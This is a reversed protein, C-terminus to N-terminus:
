WFCSFPYCLLFMFLLTLWFSSLFIVYCCCSVFIFIIVYDSVSQLTVLWDSWGAPKGNDVPCICCEWTASCCCNVPDHMWLCEGRTNGEESSAGSGSFSGYTQSSDAVHRSLRLYLSFSDLHNYKFIKKMEAQAAVAGGETVAAHINSAAYTNSCTVDSVLLRGSTWPIISMSDPRKGDSLLLGTPELRSPVKASPLSRYIIDKM